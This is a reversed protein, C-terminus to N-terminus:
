MSYHDEIDGLSQLTTLKTQRVGMRHDGRINTYTRILSFVEAM